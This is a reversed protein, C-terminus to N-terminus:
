TISTSHEVPKTFELSSRIPISRHHADARDTLSVPSQDKQLYGALEGQLPNVSQAYSRRVPASEEYLALLGSYHVVKM